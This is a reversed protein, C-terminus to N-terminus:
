SSKTTETPNKEDEIKEKWSLIKNYNMEISELAKKIEESEKDKLVLIHHVYSFALIFVGQVGFLVMSSPDYFQFWYRWISLIIVLSGFVYGVLSIKNKIM